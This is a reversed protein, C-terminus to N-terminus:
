APPNARPRPPRPRFHLCALGSSEEVEQAPLGRSKFDMARCGYPFTVEHTIFFHQCNRCDTKLDPM